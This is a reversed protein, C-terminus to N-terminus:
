RTTEHLLEIGKFLLVKNWMDTHLPAINILALGAVRKVLTLDYCNAALWDEYFRRSETLQCPVDYRYTVVSSGEVLEVNTDAKLLEFPVLYGAYLKGLDYYLDGMETNGGFSERWDVYVFHDRREDYIINDFHLDGHFRSYLRGVAPIGVETHDILQQLPEYPIGNITRAENLYSSGYRESFLALRETTKGRYFSALLEPDTGRKSDAIVRKLHALFRVHVAIGHRYLNEGPCWDYAMLSGCRTVNAPVLDRLADARIIRNTTVSKGTHLKLMRPGVRYTVEDITKPSALPTEGFHARAAMLDDLNGADFWPLTKAKLTPYASPNRWAGVLEGDAAQLERWFVAYDRIAALGMFANDFGTASKNVVATVAGNVVEVTAYKEPYDTPYVGIWNGDIHPMEKDVLSDVATLYFPRQLHHACALASHGPDTKPDDWRDVEVFIFTREPHALQCYDILSNKQYGVAVVIEYEPSFKEVIHSIVAKDAIPLLAKNKSVTHHKLRSGLGAALILVAPVQHEAEIRGDGRGFEDNIRVVDDVYENSVEFMEIDTLAIVRHKRTAPVFFSDGARLVHTQVVGAADELWVEAEGNRIFNIEEKQRHWQYSTKYGKFIRITKVCFDRSLIHWIELGWAKYITKIAHNLNM